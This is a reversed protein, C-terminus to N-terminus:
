RRTPGAKILKKKKAKSAWKALQTYSDTPSGDLGVISTNFRFMGEPYSPLLFQLMSKVRRNKQAITFAQVLYKARRGEPFVTVKSGDKASFYGFETLNIDLGGRGKVKVLRKNKALVDLMDVLDNLNAMTVINKADRSTLGKRKKYNFRKNPPSDFDYPHYAMADARLTKCKGKPRDRSDLCFMDRLFELPTIAVGKKTPYPALEGFWVKVKKNAKKAAKYAQEYLSRYIKANGAASDKKSQLSGRHNPENWVSVTDVTKKFHKVAEGVFKGYYKANPKVTGAATIQKDGAAWAPAPGIISLNIKYGRDKAAKVADDWRSFDYTPRKPAKTLNRETAVNAVAWPVNMRLRSVQLKPLLDYGQERSIGGSGIYQNNLFLADDQITVEMGKAAHAKPAAAFMLISASLLAAAIAIRTLASQKLASSVSEVGERQDKTRFKDTTVLVVHPM